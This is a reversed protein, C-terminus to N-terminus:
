RPIKMIVRDMELRGSFQEVRRDLCMEELNRKNKNKLIKSLSSRYRM